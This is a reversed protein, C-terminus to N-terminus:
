ELGGYHCERRWLYVVLARRGIYISLAWSGASCCRHLDVGFQLSTKGDAANGIFARKTPYSPM